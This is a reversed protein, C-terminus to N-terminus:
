REHENGVWRKIPPAPPPPGAVMRTALWALALPLVTGALNMWSPYPVDAANAITAITVMTGILLAALIRHNAIRAALAAGVFASLCWGSVIVIKAVLTMGAVIAALDTPSRPDLGVPIPFLKMELLAFGTYVTFVAFAGAIVGIIDRYM